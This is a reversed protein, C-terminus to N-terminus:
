KALVLVDVPSIMEKRTLNTQLADFEELVAFKGCALSRDECAESYRKDM